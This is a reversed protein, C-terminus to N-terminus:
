RMAEYTRQDGCLEVLIRKMRETNLRKWTYFSNFSDSFKRKEMKSIYDFEFKRLM